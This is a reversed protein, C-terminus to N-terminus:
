YNFILEFDLLEHCLRYLAHSMGCVTCIVAQLGPGKEVFNIVVQDNEIYHERIMIIQWCKLSFFGRVGM